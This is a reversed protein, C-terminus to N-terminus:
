VMHLIITDRQFFVFEFKYFQHICALDDNLHSFNM